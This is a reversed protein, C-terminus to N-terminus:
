LRAVLLVVVSALENPVNLVLSRHRCLRSQHVLNCRRSWCDLRTTKRDQTSQPGAVILYETSDALLSTEGVGGGM